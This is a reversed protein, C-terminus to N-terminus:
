FANQKLTKTIQTLFVVSTVSAVGLSCISQDKKQEKLDALCLSFLINESTSTPRILSKGM